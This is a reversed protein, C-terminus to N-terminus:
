IQNDRWLQYQSTEKDLLYLCFMLVGFDDLQGWLPIFDSSFDFPNIIYAIFLGFAVMGKIPIKQYNGNRYDRWLLRMVKLNDITRNLLSILIFPKKM